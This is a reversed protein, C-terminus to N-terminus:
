LMNVGLLFTNVEDKVDSLSFKDDEYFKLLLDLFAIKSINDTNKKTGDETQGKAKIIDYFFSDINKLAETQRRYDKTFRYIFDFRKYPAQLRNIVIECMRELSKIYGGEINEQANVSTGMSTEIFLFFVIPM